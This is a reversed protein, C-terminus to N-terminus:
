RNPPREPALCTTAAETISRSTSHGFCFLGSQSERRGERMLTQPMRLPIVIETEAASRRRRSAMTASRLVECFCAHRARIMRRVESPTPVVPTMVKVPLDFVVTQRQCSRKACAPTSPSSTSLVRGGPLAGTPSSRTAFSTRSVWSGGGCSAVCQVARAMAFATPSPTAVTCFIQFAWPRAGCRQRAKLSDLSGAKASFSWSM